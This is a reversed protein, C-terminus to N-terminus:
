KGLVTREKIGQYVDTLMQSILEWDLEFFRTAAMTAIGHVCAWMELHIMEARQRSVNNASMIMEISQEADQTPHLDEGERDRMFLLKFLEREEKAFRVYAMGFAKYAPYVANKVERDIFDLYIEYIGDITAAMLDDMTAFNFFVPQTSCNLAAAVARANVAQAGSKRVINIAAKTIDGKTIKVKPPM